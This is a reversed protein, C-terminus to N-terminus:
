IDFLLYFCDPMTQLESYTVHMSEFPLSHETPRLLGSVGAVSTVFFTSAVGVLEPTNPNTTM